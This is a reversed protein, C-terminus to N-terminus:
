NRANQCHRKKTAAELAERVSTEEKTEEREGEFILAFGLKADKALSVNFQDYVKHANQGYLEELKEILEKYEVTDGEALLPAIQDTTKPKTDSM